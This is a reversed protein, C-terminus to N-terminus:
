NLLQIVIVLCLQGRPTTPTILQLAIAVQERETSSQSIGYPVLASLWIEAKATTSVQRM